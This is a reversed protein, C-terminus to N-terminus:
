RKEKRKMIILAIGVALSLVTVVSVAVWEVEKLGAFSFEGSAGDQLCPAILSVDIVFGVLFSLGSLIHLSAGHESKETAIIRTPVEKSFDIADGLYYAVALLIVTEPLMYTANYSISYILAASDPISLGVWVTAGSIVHCVYRLLMVLSAGAILGGKQTAFLKKFIGGLGVVAFAVIYDLLVVAVISQWGTVYSLDSLGLLQQLTAFVAGAGLGWVLGHRYAFVIMPLMSAITVSGGYPMDIIKFISFVTSLSIMMASEVLARTARTQKTTNM